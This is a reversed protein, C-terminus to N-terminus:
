SDMKVATTTKTTVEEGRMLKDLLEKRKMALGIDASNPHIYRESVKVSSHGMAKKIEFVNAGSQALRTGFTHRCSYLVFEPPLGHKKRLATHMNDLSGRTFHGGKSGPFVWPSDPFLDACLAFVARTRDTQPLSRWGNATKGNVTVDTETVATKLLSAAEEPRLGLDLILIAVQQLPYECLRLYRAEMAGDLIYDRNVEGPLAHIRRYRVLGCDDAFRMAKRLTRLQGNITCVSIPKNKTMRNPQKARWEKFEQILLEGVKDLRTQTFPPYECLRTVGDEYFQRTRPKKANQRVADLFKGNLFVSLIPPPERRTLGVLGLAADTRIKAVYMKAKEHNKLFTSGRFRQQQFQFDYHWIQDRKFLAM